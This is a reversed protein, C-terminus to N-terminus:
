LRCVLHLRSQLESTHEESRQVALKELSSPKGDAPMKWQWVALASTPDKLRWGTATCKGRPSDYVAQEAAELGYEDWVARDENVVVTTLSIRHLDALQEPWIAGFGTVSFLLTAVIVGRLM